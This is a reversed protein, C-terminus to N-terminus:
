NLAAIDRIYVLYGISDMDRIVITAKKNKQELLGHLMEVLYSVKFASSHLGDVSDFLDGVPTTTYRIQQCGCKSYYELRSKKVDDNIKYVSFCFDQGIDMINSLVIHFDSLNGLLNFPFVILSKKAKVPFNEVTLDNVSFQSAQAKKQIKKELFM